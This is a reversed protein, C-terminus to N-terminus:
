MLYGETQSLALASRKADSFLDNTEEIDDVSVESRGQTEALIRSPTLLQVSYRLSTQSGIEGLRVIADDMLKIGEVEARIKIIQVMEEVSYPMTRIILMRDLLDLPVGHPSSIDTGRIQCVGRNTAFVVIPALTSELARNLYTFCEIDLMHVEDVFLVGPVLEAVGQDIYRNVVKNIETRLKETIETKKPKMMQGMMSMIDQGGQPRANAIDLDHLTVDQILEKKKHVDGKPIPVYEEAELDYETAYADSRGVRKVSGNNAEIYIVDGVSVKEKQLSEYISPDLRLQKSGKTTKLGVIVHSITKGYGGLPNETEEPTMETVEGEYVEKTEKIRLGIARRFNEMLIETKKVESSYVESGVMPCFPVKPGLEQSIGLAMATKGTGPAGALLLARGAMKKSKILEVTLGAAERAKEQGVLGSGIPLATGDEKLGLGKVHTHSAIRQAKATSQVEEIKM